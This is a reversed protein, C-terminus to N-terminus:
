KLIVEYAVDVAMQEPNEIWIDRTNILFMVTRYIIELLESLVTTIEHTIKRIPNPLYNWSTAQIFQKSLRVITFSTKWNIYHM